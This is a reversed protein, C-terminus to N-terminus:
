EIGSKKVIRRLIRSKRILHRYSHPPFRSLIALRTEDTIGRMIDAFQPDPPLAKEVQELTTETMPEPADEISAAVMGAAQTRSLGFALRLRRVDVALNSRRNARNLAAIRNAASKKEPRRLGLCVELPTEGESEIWRGFGDALWAMLETPPYVREAHLDCLGHAKRAPNDDCALHMALHLALRDPFSLSEDDTTGVIAQRMEDLTRPEAPPYRVFCHGTDDDSM